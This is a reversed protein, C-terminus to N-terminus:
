PKRLQTDISLLRENFPQAWLNTTNTEPPLKPRNPLSLYLSSQNPSISLFSKSKPPKTTNPNIPKPKKTAHHTQSRPKTTSLPPAIPNSYPKSNWTQTHFDRIPNHWLSLTLLIKTSKLFPQWTHSDNSAM